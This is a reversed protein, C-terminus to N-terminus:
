SRTGESVNRASPRNAIKDHWIAADNVIDPNWSFWNGLHGFWLHHDRCLTMLNNRDLELEPFLHYPRIHHVEVNNTRGCIRCHPHVRVFADRLSTWGPSRPAAPRQLLSTFWIDRLRKLFEIMPKEMLTRELVQGPQIRQRALAGVDGDTRSPQKGHAPTTPQFGM